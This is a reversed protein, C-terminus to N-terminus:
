LSAREQALAFLEISGPRGQKCPPLPSGCLGKNHSFSSPDFEQLKGGVTPIPGFLQNYSVNFDYLLSAQGLWAPLKGYIMNNELRLVLLNSELQGVPMVVKSLDFSLKNRSLDLHALETKSEGFLFSADGTLQNGAAEFISFNVKGLSRPIPGSLMNNSLTVQSGAKFSGFSDPIPGTLHNDYLDLGQLKPLRGLYAPIPGTLQNNNLGLTALNTLKSFYDPIPGTLNNWNLLVFKLHPLRAIAQPIPGTLNPLLRFILTELYPLDAILPPITGVLDDAGDIELFNVRHITTKPIKKCSVIRWKCCDTHPIWTSFLSTNHFYDKIKLLVKEDDPHCLNPRPPSSILSFTLSPLFLLLLFISKREM